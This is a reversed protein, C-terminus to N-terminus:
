VRKLSSLIASVTPLPEVVEVTEIDIVQEEKGKEIKEEITTSVKSTTEDDMLVLVPITTATSPHSTLNVAVSKTLICSFSVAPSQNCVSASNKGSRAHM